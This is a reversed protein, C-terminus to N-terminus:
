PGETKEATLRPQAEAAKEGPQKAENFRDFVKMLPSDATNIMMRQFAPAMKTFLIYQALQEGDGGFAEVAKRWGAAEAENGFEIVKADAEGLRTIRAAMDQAAKLQLEAVALRQNAEILAVEKKREADTVVTIVEQEAEVIQTKRKIMADEVAKKKESEQQLTQKEYKALDQLAVERQKVVDLIQQPPQYDTISVVVIEIGQPECVQELAVQFAKQFEIRTEGSIFERGTYNSGELRCFSRANPLIVKNIIEEDIRAGDEDDNEVDNYLVFLEAANESKIRFEVVGDLTIWFGDKSPFGMEDGESLDFRKSRCDVLDVRKVYPNFYKTSEELVEAQVGREGVDSLLSNPTKPLPGSLKTVVGKYGAPIKVPEVLEIYEAYSDFAAERGRGGLRQDSVPGPAAGRARHGETRAELRDGRWLASRRRPASHSRRAHGEPIEIQPVIVWKWTWPNRWHRGEGLVERQVGKYEASPALEEDLPLNEGTKKILVAIHRTPVDVRCMLWVFALGGLVVVAALLAAAGFLGGAFHPSRFREM